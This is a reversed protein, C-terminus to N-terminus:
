HTRGHPTNKILSRFSRAQPGARKEISMYTRFSRLAADQCRRERPVPGRAVTFFAVREGYPSPRDRAMTRAGQRDRPVPGRAVTTWAAARDGYPSPRDRATSRDVPRERPVPGRAVIFFVGGRGTPSPGECAVRAHSRTERAMTRAGQRDRPVPGRAVTFIVTKTVTSGNPLLRDRVVSPPMSVLLDRRGPLFVRCNM